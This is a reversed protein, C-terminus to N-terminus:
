MFQPRCVNEMRIDRYIIDLPSKISVMKFVAKIQEKETVKLSVHNYTKEAFHHAKLGGM